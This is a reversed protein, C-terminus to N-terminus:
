GINLLLRYYRVIDAEAVKQTKSYGILRVLSERSLSGEGRAIYALLFAHPNKFTYNPLNRFTDLVRVEDDPAFKYDEGVQNFFALLTRETINGVQGLEVRRQARALAGKAGEIETGLSAGARGRAAMEGYGLEDNESM